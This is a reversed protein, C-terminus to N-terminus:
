SKSGTPRKLGLERAAFRDLWRDPILRPLWWGMLWQRPVPYRSRPTPDTVATRVVKVVRDVPMATRERKAIVQAVRPLYPAYGTQAYRGIQEGFKSIIPTKITGPQVVIVDVGYILLEARLGDSLAEVAHKSASYAGMFPYTIEGSVSSINIIRGPSHPFNPLAGLLPAFAQTVALLGFVNVEFQTRFEDLDFHLLPGPTAIGANNILAALPRGNLLDRTQAVAAAIGAKDTVDFLLPTFAQGWKNQLTEADALKRVSGLVQFGQALLDDAIAYGIGTSVGTIVITQM